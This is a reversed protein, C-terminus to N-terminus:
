SEEGRAKALAARAEVYQALKRCGDDDEYLSALAKLTKYMDPAAAILHANAERESEDSFDKGYRRGGVEDVLVYDLGEKRYEPHMAIIRRGGYKDTQVAWPGKTFKMDKSM